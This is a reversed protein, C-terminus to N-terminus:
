MEMSKDEGFRVKIICLDAKQAGRHYSKNKETLISYRLSVIIGDLKDSASIETNILDM